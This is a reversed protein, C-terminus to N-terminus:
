WWSVKVECLKHCRKRSRKEFRCAAKANGTKGSKEHGEKCMEEYVAVNGRRRQWYAKKADEGPHEKKFHATVSREKEARAVHGLLSKDCLGCAWGREAMLITDSLPWRRRSSTCRLLTHATDSAWARRRNTRIKSM